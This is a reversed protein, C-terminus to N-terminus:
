LASLEPMTLFTVLTREPVLTMLTGQHWQIQFALRMVSKQGYCKEQYDAATLPPTEM